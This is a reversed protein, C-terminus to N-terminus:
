SNRTNQPETATNELRFQSFSTSVEVSRRVEQLPLTNSSRMQMLPLSIQPRVVLIGYFDQKSQLHESRQQCLHEQKQLDLTLLTLGIDSQGPFPFTKATNRTPIM